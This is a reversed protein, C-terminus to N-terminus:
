VMFLNRGVYKAVPIESYDPLKTRFHIIAHRMKSIYAAIRKVHDLHGQKPETWFKSMKMVTTAVM